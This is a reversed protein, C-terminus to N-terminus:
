LAPSILLDEDSELLPSTQIVDTVENDTYIQLKVQITARKAPQLITEIPNVIPEIVNANARDENKLHVSFFPFNLIARRM